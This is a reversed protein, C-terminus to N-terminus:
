VTLFTMEKRIPDLGMKEDLLADMLGFQSDLYADDNGGAILREVSLLKERFMAVPESYTFCDMLRRSIGSKQSEAAPFVYNFYRNIVKESFDCEFCDADGNLLHTSLYKVCFVKHNYHHRLTLAQFINQPLIYEEKFFADRKASLSCALILCIRKIDTIGDVSAPLCMDFVEFPIVNTYGCFNCKDYDVRGLEEWCVYSSSGLYLCPIGSISYRQNGIRDRKDFPIHFMEEKAFLYNTEGKRAKYLRLGTNVTKTGLKEILTQTTKLAIYQDGRLFANLITGVDTKCVNVEKLLEELLSGTVHEIEEKNSKLYLQFSTLVARTRDQIAGHLCAEDQLWNSAEKILNEMNIVSLVLAFM